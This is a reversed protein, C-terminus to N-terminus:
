TKNKLVIKEVTAETNLTLVAMTIPLTFRRPGASGPNVFLVGNQSKELFRHSHGFVIIKNQQETINIDEINHVVLISWSGVELRETLKLTNAWPEFDVNGRVATTPALQQLETLVQQNDFDGAHIILDCGSLIKKAESRLLGHTDSILGIRVNSLTNM